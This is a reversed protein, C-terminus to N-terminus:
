LYEIFEASPNEGVGTWEGKRLTPKITGKHIRERVKRRAESETRAAVTVDIDDFEATVRYRKMPPKYGKTAMNM